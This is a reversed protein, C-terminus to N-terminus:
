KSGIELVKPGLRYRKTTQGTAHNLLTQAQNATMASARIKRLDHETFAKGGADRWKRSARQWVSDFSSTEGDENIYPTHNRTHFVYLSRVAGPRNLLETVIARTAPEWPVVIEDGRKNDSFRMGENLLDSRQLRLLEGKRRGTWIKLAVYLQFQRPLNPLFALVEEETPLVRRHDLAFKVVKKDTMPHDDRLGWEIAKTFMHSLVELDLNAKKKSERKGIADRYAYLHKPRILAVKNGAFARRIRALSYSNSKRTAAAKESVVELAYRDCLQCMTSVNGEYGVRKAFTAHAEALTSGLRFESKGDWHDRAHEPVRYRYAGDKWRWRAPLGRHEPKRKRPSM